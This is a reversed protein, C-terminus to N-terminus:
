SRSGKRSIWPSERVFWRWPRDDGKGPSLGIRRSRGVQNDDVTEGFVVRLRDGDLAQGDHLNVSIGFAACLKGPGNTIRRWSGSPVRGPAPPIDTDPFRRRWMEEVGILPEVARILVAAGIGEEECVVNFCHHIGYIKYVYAHGGDLFMSRNRGGPGGFSHSGPDGPRYAETEVIRGRLWGNDTFRLIDCGLLERAVVRADRRFFSRPLPPPASM